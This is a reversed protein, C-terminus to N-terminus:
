ACGAVNIAIDRDIRAAIDEGFKGVGGGALERDAGGHAEHKPDLIEVCQAPEAAIESLWVPSSSVHRAADLVLDRDDAHPARAEALAPVEPGSSRMTSANASHM